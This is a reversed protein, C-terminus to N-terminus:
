NLNAFLFFIIYIFLVKYEKSVNPELIRKELMFQKALLIQKRKILKSQIKAKIVLSSGIAVAKNEENILSM